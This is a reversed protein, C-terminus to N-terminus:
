NQLTLMARPLFFCDLPAFFRLCDRFDVCHASERKALHLVKVGSGRFATHKKKGWEGAKKQGLVYRESLDSQVV